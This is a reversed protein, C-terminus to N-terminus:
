TLKQMYILFTEFVKLNEKSTESNLDMAGVCANWFTLVSTRTVKSAIRGTTSTIYFHILNKCLDTTPITDKSLGCAELYRFFDTLSLGFDLLDNSLVSQKWLALADQRKKRTPPSCQRDTAKPQIAGPVFGNSKALAIRDKASKHATKQM